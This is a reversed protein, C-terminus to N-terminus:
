TNAHSTSRAGSSYFCLAGGERTRQAELCKWRRDRFLWLVLRRSRCSRARHVGRPHRLTPVLEM